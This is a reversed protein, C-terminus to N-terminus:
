LSNKSERAKEVTTWLKELSYFDRAHPLMIHVIIDGFDLLVWEGQELGETGFPKIGNAKAQTVVRDAISLVHRNSTGSCIIMKDAIDTLSSIDLSVVSQAKIDDLTNLIIKEFETINM